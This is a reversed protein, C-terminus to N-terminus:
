KEDPEPRAKMASELAQKYQQQVAQAQERVSGEPASAAGQLAAAEPQQLVPMVNTTSHLQQKVLVGVLALTVLLALLGFIGKM